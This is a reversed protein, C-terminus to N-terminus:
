LVIYAIYLITPIMLLGNFVIAFINNIEFKESPFQTTIFHTEGLSKCSMKFAEEDVSRNMKAQGRTHFNFFTIFAFFFRVDAAKWYIQQRLLVIDSQNQGFHKKILYNKRIATAALHRTSSPTKFLLIIIFSNQVSFSLYSIYAAPAVHGLRFFFLVVCSVGGHMFTLFILPIKSFEFSLCRM